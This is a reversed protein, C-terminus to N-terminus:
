GAGTRVEGLQTCRDRWLRSSIGLEYARDLVARMVVNWDPPGGCAYLDNYEALQPGALLRAHAPSTNLRREEMSKEAMRTKNKKEKKTNLRVNEDSGVTMNPRGCDTSFDSLIAELAEAVEQMKAIDALETPRRRPL